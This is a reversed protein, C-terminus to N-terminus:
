SIFDLSASHVHQFQAAPLKLRAGLDDGCAVQCVPVNYNLLGAALRSSGRAGGFTEANILVVVPRLGRRLLDQVALLLEPQTSSTILVVASGVPLLKAQMEVLGHMPMEGEPQLFALTEMLKHVQRTGREAPVVTFMSGACALGVARRDALFFEALSAAASVAYEFTDRPLEIKPRRLWWGDGLNAIPREPLSARVEHQADLFLWIEAQPDQEFEKVM